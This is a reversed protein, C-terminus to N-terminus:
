AQLKRRTRRHYFESRPHRSHLLVYLQTHFDCFHNNVRHDLADPLGLEIYCKELKAEFYWTARTMRQGIWGSGQGDMRGLERVIKVRWSRILAIEEPM